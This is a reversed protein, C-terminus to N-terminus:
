NEAPAETRSATMQYTIECPLTYFGGEVGIAETCDSGAGPVFGYSLKGSFGLVEDSSDLAGSARDTRVVACGPAGPSPEILQVQATSDFSFTLGDSALSGDVPEEGNLWYIANDERSMQVDFEWVDESGLAGPGCSSDQLRAVIHFTGLDEGPITADGEGFDCGASGSLLLLFVAGLAAGSLSSGFKKFRKTM